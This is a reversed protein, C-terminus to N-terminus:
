GLRSEAGGAPVPPGALGGPPLGSGALWSAMIMQAMVARM